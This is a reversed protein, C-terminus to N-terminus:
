FQYCRIKKRNPENSRSRESKFRPQKGRAGFALPFANIKLGIYADSGTFKEKSFFSGLNDTGVYLWTLRLAGGIRLSRWDDLVLPFSASVWRHELRPVLALTSPRKVSYPSLPLRQVLIGSVYFLPALKTDFQASLMTPLGVAFSNRLLSANPDGLFAQSLDRLIDEANDRSPFDAGRVTLLTDFYIRHRQATNKFRVWGADTLSIGFKWVYGGDEDGSPMAWSAGLDLGFGIGQRRLRANAPDDDTLNATTTAFDWRASSFATTDGLRQTYDFGAAARVFFGEYGLLLKPSAGWAFQLDGMELLQSYHLGIEGWAMGTLGVPPIRFPQNRPLDSVNRYVLTEPIQYSSFHARFATTFGVVHNEGLRASFAPGAIRSQLVLHMNREPIFFDQLFAGRPAPNEASTDAVSRIFEINRLAKPVSANWLFGYSNEIFADANFLSVEWKHPAFATQSPNIGAGYIGAYRELRMGLQAQATLDYCYYCLGVFALALCFTKRM